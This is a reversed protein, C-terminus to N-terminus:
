QAKGKATFRSSSKAKYSAFSGDGCGRKHAFPHAPISAAAIVTVIIPRFLLVNSRLGSEAAYAVAM